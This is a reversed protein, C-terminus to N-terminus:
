RASDISSAKKFPTSSEHYPSIGIVSHGEMPDLVLRVSNYATPWDRTVGTVMADADGRAVMADAFHNRDQNILRQCDRLLFGKRQLREFLFQAYVSNRNSLKANHIEINDTLDVLALKKVGRKALEFSVANGIGSGGGTIIGVRDKIEM